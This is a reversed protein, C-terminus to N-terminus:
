AILLATVILHFLRNNPRQPDLLRNDIITHRYDIIVQNLLNIQEDYTNYEEYKVIRNFYKLIAFKEWVHNNSWGPNEGPVGVDPSWYTNWNGKGWWIWQVQWTFVM